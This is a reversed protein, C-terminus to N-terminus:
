FFKSLKHQGIACNTFDNFYKSDLKSFPVLSDEVCRKTLNLLIHDNSSDIVERYKRRYKM